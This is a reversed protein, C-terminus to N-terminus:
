SSGKLGFSGTFVGRPSFVSSGCTRAASASATLSRREAPMGRSAGSRSWWYSSRPSSLIGIWPPGPLTPTKLAILTGVKLLAGIWRSTGCPELKTITVWNVSPQGSGRVITM